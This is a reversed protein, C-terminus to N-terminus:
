GESQKSSGTTDAAPIDATNTMTGAFPVPTEGSITLGDNSFPISRILELTEAAFQEDIQDIAFGAHMLIWDDVAAAPVLDLSITRTVGMVDVVALNDGTKEKIQAPIALCM